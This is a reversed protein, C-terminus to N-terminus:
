EAWSKILEQRYAFIFPGTYAISAAAIMINGILNKLDLQLVRESEKWRIAEGALGGGLKEGRELQVEATEQQQKYMASRRM